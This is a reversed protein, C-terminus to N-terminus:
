CLAWAVSVITSSNPIECAGLTNIRVLVLRVGAQSVLSSWGPIGHGHITDVNKGGGFSERRAYWFASRDWPRFVALHVLSSGRVGSIM